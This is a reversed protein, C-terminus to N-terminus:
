RFVYLGVFVGVIRSNVLHKGSFANRSKYWVKVVKFSDSNCKKLCMCSCCIYFVNEKEAPLMRVFTFLRCTFKFNHTNPFIVISGHLYSTKSVTSTGINMRIFGPDRPKLIGHLEYILKTKRPWRKISKKCHTPLCLRAHTDLYLPRRKLIPAVVYKRTVPLM